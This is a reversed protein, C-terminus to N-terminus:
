NAILHQLMILHLAVANVDAGADILVQVEDDDGASMPMINSRIDSDDHDHYYVLSCVDHHHLRLVLDASCHEELVRHSMMSSAYCVCCRM